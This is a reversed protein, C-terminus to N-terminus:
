PMQLLLINRCTIHNVTMLRFVRNWNLTSRTINWNLFHSFGISREIRAKVSRVLSASGEDNRISANQTKQRTRLSKGSPSDGQVKDNKEQLPV